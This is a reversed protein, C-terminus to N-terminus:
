GCGKLVDTERLRGGKRTQSCWCCVSVKGATGLNLHFVLGVGSASLDVM